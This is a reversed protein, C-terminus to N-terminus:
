ETKAADIALFFISFTTRRGTNRYEDCSWEDGGRMSHTRTHMIAHLAHICSYVYHMYAHNNHVIICPVRLHLEHEHEEFEPAKQMYKVKKNRHTKQTHTWAYTQMDTTQTFTTEHKCDHMSVLICVYMCVYLGASIHPRLIEHQWVIPTLCEYAYLYGPKHM